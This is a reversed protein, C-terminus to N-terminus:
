FELAIEWFESFFFQEWIISFNLLSKKKEIWKRSIEFM